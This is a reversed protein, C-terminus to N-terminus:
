DMRPRKNDSAIADTQPEVSQVLIADTRVRGNARVLALTSSNAIRRFEHRIAREHNGTHHFTVTLREGSTVLSWSGHPPGMGYVVTNDSMLHLNLPPWLEEFPSWGGKPVLSQYWFSYQIQRDGAMAGVPISRNRRLCPM